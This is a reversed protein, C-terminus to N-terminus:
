LLYQSLVHALKFIGLSRVPLSVRTSARYCVHVRVCVCLWESERERERVGVFVSLIHM